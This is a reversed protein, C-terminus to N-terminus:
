QASVIKVKRPGLLVENGYMSAWAEIQELDWSTPAPPQRNDNAPWNTIPGIGASM